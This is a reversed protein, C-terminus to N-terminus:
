LNSYNIEKGSLKEVEEEEGTMANIFIRYTEDGYTGLFEYVLVEEGDDSDIIALYDEQVDIDESMADLAEDKSLKPEPIDRNRNNQLYNQATLGLIEGNDLAIKVEIADSHIRIDDEKSLFSYVGIDDFENSQFIDIDEFGFTQLYEEAKEMGEDLSLEKENIPRDVLLTMQHGGKVTMDLYANKNGNDYSISYTEVDSGEGSTALDMKNEDEVNFIEKSRELAEEETIDEGTLHDYSHEQASLGIIASDVNGETYEGVKEEVTQFGDIITNDMPEDQTALALQVDMWRLNEDLVVHQVERLETQIDEAENYLDKLSDVEKDSLPDEDLDRVATRYTFEGIDSLFSETKNFPLLALPLQGVNALAESTLRWIEVLRPSLKENSSTVLAVGIEDHLLDMHYTLEHFARQY